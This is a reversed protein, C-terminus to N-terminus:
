ENSEGQKSREVTYRILATVADFHDFAQGKRWSLAAAIVTAWPEGLQAQAWHAASPKSAIVGYTLTHLVRCMTLVAYAQYESSQLRTPHALMPQWWSHLFGVVAGRGDIALELPAVV